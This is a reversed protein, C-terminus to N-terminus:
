RSRKARRFPCVSSVRMVRIATRTTFHRGRELYTASNETDYLIATSLAEIADASKGAEAAKQGDALAKHARKADTRNGANRVTQGQQAQLQVAVAILIVATKRFRCSLPEM